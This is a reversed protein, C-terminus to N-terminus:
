RVSASIATRSSASSARSAQRATRACRRSHRRAAPSSCGARRVGTRGARDGEVGAHGGCAVRIDLRRLRVVPLVGECDRDLVPSLNASAASTTVGDDPLPGSVSRADPRWLPLGAPRGGGCGHARGAQTVLQTVISGTSARVDVSTPPRECSTVSVFGCRPSALVQSPLLLGWGPRLTLERKVTTARGPRGPWGAVNAPSQGYLAAYRRCADRMASCRGLLDVSTRTPLPRVRLDSRILLHASWALGLGRSSRTVLHTVIVVALSPRWCVGISTAGWTPCVGPRVQPRETM